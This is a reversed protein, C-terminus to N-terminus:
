VYEAPGGVQEAEVIADFDDHDHRISMVKYSM